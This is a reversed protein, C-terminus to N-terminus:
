VIVNWRQPHCDADAVAQANDDWYRGASIWSGHGQVPCTRGRVQVPGMGMGTYSDIDYAEGPSNGVALIHTNANADVAEDALPVSATDAPIDLIHRHESRWPGGQTSNM